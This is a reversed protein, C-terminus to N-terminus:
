AAPAGLVVAPSYTEENEMTIPENLWASGDVNWSVLLLTQRKKFEAHESTAVLPGSGDKILYHKFSLLCIDGETGVAPRRENFLLPRGLLTAPMGERADAYIYNSAPDKLQRLQPMMKRSALFVGDEGYLEAEMQILDAYTVANAGERNVVKRCASKTFGRPKGAGLGDLFAHDEAARVAGQLLRSGWGASAQWNRMLKNTFPICAAMEYPRLSISRLKFETEPAATDEAEMWRVEVGGYMNQAASQDLAPITVEADPPSGAPIVQARPRVISASQEVSLIESRFQTPVAFGGSPGQGMQQGAQPEKDQWELRQDRGEIAASLFEDLSEFDKKAPDGPIFRSTTGGRAAAPKVAELENEIEEGEEFFELDAKLKNAKEKFADFKKQEDENPGRDEESCLDRIAKMGELAEVRENRLEAVSVPM